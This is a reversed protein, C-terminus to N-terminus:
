AASLREATAIAHWEPQSFVLWEPTVTVDPREELLHPPLVDRNPVYLCGRWRGAENRFLLGAAVAMEVAWWATGSSVGLSRALERTSPSRGYAKIWAAVHRAVRISREERLAAAKPRRRQRTDPNRASRADLYGDLRAKWLAKRVSQVKLAHLDALEKASPSRGYTAVFAHWRRVTLPLRNSPTVTVFAPM